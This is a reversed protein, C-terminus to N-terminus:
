GQLDQGMKNFTRSLIALEDNGEIILPQDFDGEGLRIAKATLEQIPKLSNRSALFVLGISFPVGLLFIALAELTVDKLGGYVSSIPEEGIVAWKARSIPYSSSLVSVGKESVTVSPNPEYALAVAELDPASLTKVARSVEPTHLLSPHSSIFQSDRYAIPAGQANVIYAYGETGLKASLLSNWLNKLSINVILAGKIDSGFRRALAQATSLSQDGLKGVSLLPVAITIQPLGNQYSVDSLSAQASIKSVVSFAQTKAVNQLDSIVQHDEIVVRENGSSDVLAIRLIDPDQSSYQLLKHKSQDINLDIASQDQSHSLVNNIKADLLENVRQASSALLLSQRNAAAQKLLHQSSNLWIFNIVILLVVAIITFLLLVRQRIGLQLGM